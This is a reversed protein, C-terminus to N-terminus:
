GALSRGARHLKDTNISVNTVRDIESRMRDGEQLLGPAGEM